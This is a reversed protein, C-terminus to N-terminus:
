ATGQEIKPNRQTIANKAARRGTGPNGGRTIRVESPRQFFIPLPAVLLGIGRDVHRPPLGLERPGRGASNPLPAMDECCGGCCGCCCCCRCCGCRAELRTDSMLPSLAGGSTTPPLRRAKASCQLAVALRRHGGTVGPCSRCSAVPVRVSGLGCLSVIDVCGQMTRPRQDRCPRTM